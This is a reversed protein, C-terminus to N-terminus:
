YAVKVSSWDDKDAPWPPPVEGSVADNHGYIWNGNWMQNHELVFVVNAAFAAVDNGCTSIYIDGPVAKPAMNKVIFTVFGVADITIEPGKNGIVRNNGHALVIITSGAPIDLGGNSVGTTGSWTALGAM